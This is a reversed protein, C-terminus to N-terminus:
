HIDAVLMKGIFDTAHQWADDSDGRFTITRTLTSQGTSVNMVEIEGWQILSSMKHVAGFVVFQAKEAQADKTISDQDLRNASCPAASCQLPEPAFNGSKALIDIIGAKLAKLRAQHAAAQDRVEGSTDQYDFDAVAVKVPAAAAPLAACCILLALGTINIPM